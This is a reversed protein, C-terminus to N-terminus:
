TAAIAEKAKKPIFYRDLQERFDTDITIEGYLIRARADFVRTPGAPRTRRPRELDAMRLAIDLAWTARHLMRRQAWALGALLMMHRTSEGQAIRPELVELALQPRLFRLCAEVYEEIGEPLRAPDYKIVENWLNVADKMMNQKFAVLGQYYYRRPNYNDQELREIATEYHRWYILMRYLAEPGAGTESNLKHGLDWVYSAKPVNGQVDFLDFLYSYATARDSAPASEMTAAHLLPEEAEELRGLWLFASGLTLWTWPNEADQEAFTRLQAIAEEEQGAELKLNALGVQLVAEREPALALAQEQATIAEGYRGEWRLLDILEATAQLTLDLDGSNLETPSKDRATAAYSQLIETYCSIAAEQEGSRSLDRAQNYLEEYRESPM